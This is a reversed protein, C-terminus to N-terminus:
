FKDSRERYQLVFLFDYIYFTQSRIQELNVIDKFNVYELELLACSIKIKLQPLVCM